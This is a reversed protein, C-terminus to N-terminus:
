DFDGRAFRGLQTGLYLTLVGGFLSAIVVGIDPRSQTPAGVMRPGSPDFLLYQATLWLGVLLVGLGGLTAIVGIASALSKLLTM